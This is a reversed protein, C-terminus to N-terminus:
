RLSPSPSSSGPWPKPSLRRTSLQANMAPFLIDVGRTHFDRRKSTEVLEVDRCSKPLIGM